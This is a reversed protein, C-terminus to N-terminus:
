NLLQLLVLLNQYSPHQMNVLNQQFNERASKPSFIRLDDSM